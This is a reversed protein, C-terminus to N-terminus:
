DIAWIRLILSFNGNPVNVRNLDKDTFYVTLQQNIFDIFPPLANGVTLANIDNLTFPTNFTFVLDGNGKTKTNYTCRNSFQGIHINAFTTATNLNLASLINVDEIALAEVDYVWRKAKPMFLPLNVTFDFSGNNYSANNPQPIPDNGLVILENQTLNTSFVFAYYLSGNLDYVTSIPSLRGIRNDIAQTNRGTMTSTKVLVGNVYQRRTTGGYTDAVVNNEAYTDTGFNSDNVWWFGQYGTLDRRIGLSQNTTRAGAQLFTGISSAEAHKVLLSYAGSGVPLTANPLDFFKNNRFDITNNALNIKPQSGTTAQTAHNGSGSQDYWTDVFGDSGGLWTAVTQGSLNILTGDNSAFFDFLANDSGRRLKIIANPYSANVKTLAYAGRCASKNTPSILDLKLPNSPQTSALVLKYQQPYEM